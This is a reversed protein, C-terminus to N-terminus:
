AASRLLYLSYRSSVAIIAGDVFSAMEDIAGGLRPNPRGALDDGEIGRRPKEARGAPGPEHGVLPDRPFRLPEAPCHGFTAPQEIVEAAEAGFPEIWRSKLPRDDVEVLPRGLPSEFHPGL